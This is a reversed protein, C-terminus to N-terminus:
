IGEARELFYGISVSGSAKIFNSPTQYPNLQDLPEKLLVFSPVVKIDFQKFKLPDISMGFEEKKTSLNKIKTYTSKFDKYFGRMVFLAQHKKGERLFAKLEKEPMSFSLFVILRQSNSAISELNKNKVEKVKESPPSIKKGKPRTIPNKLSIQIKQPNLNKIINRQEELENLFTSSTSLSQAKQFSDNLNKEQKQIEKQGPDKFKIKNMQLDVRKLAERIVEKQRKLTKQDPEKYEFSYTKFLPVIILIVKLLCLM